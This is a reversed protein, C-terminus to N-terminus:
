ISSSFHFQAQYKKFVSAFDSATGLLKIEFNIVLIYLMAVLFIPLSYYWNSGDTLLLFFNTVM